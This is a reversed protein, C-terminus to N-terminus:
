QVKQEASYRQSISQSASGSDSRRVGRINGDGEKVEIGCKTSCFSAASRLAVFGFAGKMFYSYSLYAVNDGSAAAMFYKFYTFCLDINLNINWSREEDEDWESMVKDACITCWGGM